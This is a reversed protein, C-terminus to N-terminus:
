PAADTYEAIKSRRYDIEQQLKDIEAQHKASTERKWAAEGEPSIYYAYVAQAFDRFKGEPFHHQRMNGISKSYDRSLGDETIYIAVQCQKGKEEFKIELKHLPSSAQEGTVTDRDIHLHASVTGSRGQINEFTLYRYEDEVEIEPFRHHQYRM